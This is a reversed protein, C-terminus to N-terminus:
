LNYRNRDLLEQRKGANWGAVDQLYGTVRSIQMVDHSGCPCIPKLCKECYHVGAAVDLACHCEHDLDCDPVVDGSCKPCKGEILDEESIILFCPDCKYKKTM